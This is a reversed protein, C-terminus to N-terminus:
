AAGGLQELVAALVAPQPRWFGLAGTCPVPESLRRVNALAWHYVGPGPEGWPWCCGAAEHCDTIEAVAVIRGHHFSGGPADMLAELVWPSLLALEDFGRLSTHIAIPGRHSTRRTRNEVTKRGSAICSGWPQRVTLGRWADLSAQALARTDIPPAPHADADAAAIWALLETDTTM